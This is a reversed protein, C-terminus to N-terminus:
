KKKARNKKKKEKIVKNIEKRLKDPFSSGYDLCLPCEKKKCYTLLEKCALIIHDL